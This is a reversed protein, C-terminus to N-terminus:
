TGQVMSRGKSGTRRTPMPPAPRPSCTARSCASSPSRLPTVAPPSSWPRTSWSWDRPWGAPSRTPGQRSPWSCTALVGAPDEAGSVARDGRRGAGIRGRSTGARRRGHRAPLDRASALHPLRVAGRGPAAPACAEQGARARAVLPQLYGCHFLAYALTYPHQLRTALAMAEERGPSRGTPTAWYGSSSRPPPSARLGRTTASGSRGPGPRGPGSAPSRKTWTSWRRGPHRGPSMRVALVLHGEILMGDDNQREALQLIERGIRAGKDFESQAIYYSALSRLVPFLQPLERGQFPQLATAYAEEVERSYGKTAMLARALSM